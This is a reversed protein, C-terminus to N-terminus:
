YSVKLWRRIRAFMSCLLVNKRTCLKGQIAKRWLTVQAWWYEGRRFKWQLWNIQPFFYDVFFKWFSLPVLLRRGRGFSLGSTGPGARKWQAVRSIQRKQKTTTHTCNKQIKYFRDAVKRTPTFSFPFIYKVFFLFVFFSFFLHLLQSKIEDGWREYKM